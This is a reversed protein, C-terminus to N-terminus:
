ITALLDSITLEPGMLPSAAMGSMTIEPVTIEPLGLEEGMARYVVRVAADLGEVHRDLKMRRERLEEVTEQMLIYKMFETFLRCDVLEPRLWMVRAVHPYFREVKSPDMYEVAQRVELQPDRAPMFDLHWETPHQKMKKFIEILNLYEIVTLLDVKEVTKQMEQCWEEGSLTQTQSM